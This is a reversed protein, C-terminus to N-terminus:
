RRRRAFARGAAEDAQKQERAAQEQDEQRRCTEIFNEMGRRREWAARWADRRSDFVRRVQALQQEQQRIVQDLQASFAQWAQLRTVAVTGQHGARMQDRYEAQYRNLEDLRAQQDDVMRRAEAMQELAEQERREEVALVVKLRESRRM